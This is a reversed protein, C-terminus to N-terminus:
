LFFRHLAPHKSERREDVGLNVLRLGLDHEIAVLDGRETQVHLLDAFIEARHDAAVEDVAEVDSTAAVLDDRM